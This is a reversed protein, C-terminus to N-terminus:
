RSRPPRPRTPGRGRKLAVRYAAELAARAWRVLEDPDDFLREPARRFALDILQGRRARLRRGQWVHAADHRPWATRATRAPIRRLQRQRGDGCAVGARLRAAGLKGGSQRAGAEGPP